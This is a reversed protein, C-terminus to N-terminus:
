ANLLATQQHDLRIRRHQEVPEGIVDREMHGLPQIAFRGLRRHSYSLLPLFFPARPCYSRAGHHLSRLKTESLSTDAAM